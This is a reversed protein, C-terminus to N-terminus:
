GKLTGLREKSAAAAESGPYAKILDELTRRAARVDKTEAQCNALALMAEAARPHNPAAAVMAKFSTIADRFNKQGYQASGLWFRASDIYGSNPYRQVFAGLAVAAKDFDATRLHAMAAEYQRREAPEVMFEQGDLAVKQPELTRLRTDLAALTDQLRKQTDSLDRALQEQGGRLRATETRQTELQTNLDLLTRRLQQVQELLQANAQQLDALRTRVSDDNAQIRSRIELIAKRAEEDDFLGAQVPFTTLVLCAAGLGTVLPGRWLLSPRV